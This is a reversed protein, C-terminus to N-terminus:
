KFVVLSKDITNDLGFLVPVHIKGAKTKGTEIKFGINQLDDRIVELVDNSSLNNNASCIKDESNTFCDIVQKIETTIGRSRPFYQYRIKESM